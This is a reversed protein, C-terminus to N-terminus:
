TLEKGELFHTATERVDIDPDDKMLPKVLDQFESWGSYSMATIATTRIKPDENQLIQKFIELTESDCEKFKGQLGLYLIGKLYEEQDKPSQIMRLIDERSHIPLSAHILQITREIDEGNVVLYPLNKVKELTYHIRTKTLKTEYIVERAIGECDEIVKAPCWRRQYAAYGMEERSVSEQVVICKQQM